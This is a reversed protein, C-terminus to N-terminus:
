AVKVADLAADISTALLDIMQDIEARTITFPPSLLIHDGNMGDVTGASPYCLLGQEFAAARIKDALKLEPSFWQKNARDAVLEIGVFLGRGRIDGISPHDAFRENLRQKLYQGDERCKTPLDDRIVVTQVALAAACALTHGSYTHVSAVKGDAAIIDNYISERYVAAGVPMYGGGLGKAITMIDPEVGDVALARWAECRGVGCMVEDSIMLVGYKDCVERVLKAYTDPAPAAGLAAGV